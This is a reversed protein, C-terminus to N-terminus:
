VRAFLRKFALCAECKIEKGCSVKHIYYFIIVQLIRWMHINPEEHVMSKDFKGVIM